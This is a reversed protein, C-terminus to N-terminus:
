FNIVEINKLINNNFSLKITKQYVNKKFTENGYKKTSKYIWLNDSNDFTVPQGLLNIIQDKNYNKIQYSNYIEVYNKESIGTFYYKKSCSVLFILIVLIGVFLNKKFINV